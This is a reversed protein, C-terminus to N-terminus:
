RQDEPLPWSILLVREVRPHENLPKRNEYVKFSQIPKDPHERNYVEVVLPGFEEFQRKASLRQEPSLEPNLAAKALVLLRSRTPIMTGSSAVFKVESGDACQGYFEAYSVVQSKEGVSYMDWLTFPFIDQLRGYLQGTLMLVLAALALNRFRISWRQISDRLLWLVLALIISLLAGEILVAVSKRIISFFATLIAGAILITKVPCLSRHNEFIALGIFSLKSFM